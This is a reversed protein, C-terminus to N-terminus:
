MHLSDTRLARTEFPNLLGIWTLASTKKKYIGAMITVCIPLRNSLLARVNGRAVSGFVRIRRAGFQRCASEIADKQADLESRNYRGSRGSRRLQSAPQGKSFRIQRFAPRDRKRPFM